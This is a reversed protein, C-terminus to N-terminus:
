KTKCRHRNPLRHISFGLEKRARESFVVYGLSVVPFSLFFKNKLIMQLFATRINGQRVPSIKM